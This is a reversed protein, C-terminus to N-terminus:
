LNDDLAVRQQQCIAQIAPHALDLLQQLHGSTFPSGEATGQIEIFEGSATMVLNMDVSARNDEHACLDVITMAEWLGVSVAAVPTQVPSHDIRGQTQLWAIADCLAVYGGNIAATRTGGDAQLVDADITITRSGLKELDLAARLSRGILRQIEATRGSVKGEERKHRGQTSGPLMRYEATLWGSSQGQLFPPVDEQITATCLVHTEGWRVLVSGPAQRTFHRQFSLPRIEHCQRGDPRLMPAPFFVAEIM